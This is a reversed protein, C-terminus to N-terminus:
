NYIVKANPDKQYHRVVKEFFSHDMWSLPKNNEFFDYTVGESEM